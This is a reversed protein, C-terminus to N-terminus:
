TPLGNEDYGLIEEPTRADADPLQAFRRGIAMLRDAVADAGRRRRERELRDRLAITVADTLSEGTLTTLASALVHAEHNKVNLQM